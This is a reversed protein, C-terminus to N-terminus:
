RGNLMIERRKISNRIDDLLDCVSDMDEPTIGTGGELDFAALAQNIHGVRELINSDLVMVQSGAGHQLSKQGAHDEYATGAITQALSEAKEEIVDLSGVLDPDLDAGAVRKIRSVTAVTESLKSLIEESFIRDTKTAMKSRSYGRYGPMAQSLHVSSKVSHRTTTM